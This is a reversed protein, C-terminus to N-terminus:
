SEHKRREQEAELDARFKLWGPKDILPDGYLGPMKEQDRCDNLMVALDNDSIESLHARAIGRVLGPMYTQRGQCYRLACICLTGFSDQSIDVKM